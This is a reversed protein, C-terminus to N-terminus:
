HSCVRDDQQAHFIRQHQFIQFFRLLLEPFYGSHVPGAAPAFVGQPPDKKSFVANKPTNRCFRWMEKSRCCINTLLNDM